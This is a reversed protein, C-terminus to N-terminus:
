RDRRRLDTRLQDVAARLGSLPTISTGSGVAGAPQGGVYVPTAGVAAAVGAAAAADEPMAIGLVVADPKLEDVATRWSELPTDPGLYVVGLGNRRAITAFALAGIEHRSDPPLGVLVLPRTDGSSAAQFALALRRLVAQSALHEGAVDTRGDAWDDGIAVLAPLVILELSRDLDAVLFADDLARDLAATDLDSAARVIQQVREDFPVPPPPTQVEDAIARGTRIAVAAQAPSWGGDVLRRMRRLTAVAADDYLRYGASSREPAVIGYRRQWARLLPVSVGSRASAEGITYM